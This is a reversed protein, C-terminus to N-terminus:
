LKSGRNYLTTARLRRALNILGIVFIFAGAQLTMSASVLSSIVYFPGALAIHDLIPGMPRPAAIFLFLLGLISTGALLCFVITVWSPRSYILLLWVLFIVLIAFLILLVIAFYFFPKTNFTQFAQRQWVIRFNDLWYLLGLIPIVVIPGILKSKRIDIAKM